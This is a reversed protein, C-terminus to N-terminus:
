INLKLGRVKEDIQICSFQRRLKGLLVDYPKMRRNESDIEWVRLTQDGCTVFLSGHAKFPYIVEASGTTERSAISGCIAMKKEVDWVVLNGCDKGGLSIVYRDSSSFCLSQVVLKHIDYRALETRKEWEWVIIRARGGVASQQGSAM